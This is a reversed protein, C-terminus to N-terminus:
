CVNISKQASIQKRRFKSINETEVIEQLLVTWFKTTSLATHLIRNNTSFITLQKTHKHYPIKQQQKTPKKTEEKWGVNM